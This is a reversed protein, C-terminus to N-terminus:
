VSSNKLYLAFHIECATGTDAAAVAGDGDVALTNILVTKASSVDYSDLQARIDLATACFESVNGCLLSTYKDTLTILYQGTAPKTVAFGKGTVTGVAADAGLAFKGVILTLGTELNLVKEKFNRNAM